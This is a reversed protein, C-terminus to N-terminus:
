PVSKALRIEGIDPKVKAPAPPDLRVIRVQGQQPAAMGLKENALKAIKEPSTMRSIKVHLEDRERELAQKKIKLREIHYGVRVVDVREWVYFLLLSLVALGIVTRM